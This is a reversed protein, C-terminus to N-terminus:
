FKVNLGFTITRATPYTYYDIGQAISNSGGYSNVEPDWGSYKTLTILNQGSVFIRVSNLWNPQWRSNFPVNYGLNINRLRLYSGNEILRNSFNMTQNRTIKPYKANVNTPTWHNNYVEELLNDGYGYVLANDVSSINALDNGESGQFFIALEFNKYSLVSNLGYIFKPNPDGIITKDQQNIVGDSNMDKYKIAGNATYGDETYGYFVGVPKGERLLNVNDAFVLMDVYGGLIDQGNYLKLVKSRNFSINGNLSWNVKRNIVHADMSLEFGENRIEGVNQITSTFGLSSPLQVSNLLDRTNKIYYDMTVRVRNQLIALDVGIDKQGTTEWKLNGPLVTSPAFTTYLADGFVTKGSYLQNLTAYANIAQSGTEGWSVRLKLDSIFHNDKLFNEEKLKWALAISPFNGWKNNKSYKSSGDARFSATFLFRNNYIYNVRGLYSLLVSKSYGSGPIGPLSASALNYTETADSLFGTGSGSLSTSLFDQYSFDGVVSLKNKENFEKNYTVTNENLLSTFQNTSVSANGQSNVYNLTRYYDSRDDNNEIGGYVKLVLGEFPRFIVSANALIKNSREEDSIENIFNLPNTLGESVFPYATALIRYSGDDNYPTLTPPALLAASILSAGFRAGGSNQNSTIIKSLIASYNVSFKKSIEHNINAAISYRKYNSKKIIGDQDFVGGDISFQTKENGGSVRLSHNQIPATQFVLDQWNFGEGFKAIQDTSFYPTSGDNTAQENYLVAYQKANMMQLKKRLSQFGLSFNYDVQTKGAKGKNTTILVVGNAGRSGYIAVASADKLIEISQIDSNNLISPNSSSSPFGDIVYLPENSGQISNAGRIRVSISGGPSGTNQLVQVGSSRGSLAMLPTTTPFSNIEKNTVSSVSGTLDSKKVTGYGIAVIEDLAVAQQTLTINLIPNVGVIVNRTKMGLSSFILTDSANVSAISYMGDNNTTTGRQTGAVIISVSPIPKQDLNTVKGSITREQAFAVEHLGFIFYLATFCYFVSLKNSRMAM